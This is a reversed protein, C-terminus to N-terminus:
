STVPAQGKDVLLAMCIDVPPHPRSCEENVNRASNYFLITVAKMRVPLDFFKCYDINLPRCSQVNFM